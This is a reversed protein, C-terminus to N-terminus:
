LLAQVETNFEASENKCDFEPCSYFHWFWESVGPHSPGPVVLVVTCISLDLMGDELLIVEGDHQRILM